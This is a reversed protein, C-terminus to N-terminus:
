ASMGCCLVRLLSKQATVSSVAASFPHSCCSPYDRLHSQHSEGRAGGGEGEKLLFGQWFGMHIGQCDLQPQSIGGASGIGGDRYQCLSKQRTGGFPFGWSLSQHWHWPSRVAHPQSPEPDGRSVARLLRIGGLATGLPIQNDQVAGLPIQAWLAAQLPRVGGM